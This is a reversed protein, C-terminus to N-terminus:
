QRARAPFAPASCRGAKKVLGLRSHLQIWCGNVQGMKDGSLSTKSSRIMILQLSGTYSLENIDMRSTTSCNMLARERPLYQKVTKFEVCSQTLFLTVSKSICTLRTNFLLVNSTIRNRLRDINTQDWKLRKWARKLRGASGKTNPGLEQYQDLTEELEKVIDQCGQTIESFDTKQQDPSNRQLPIDDM